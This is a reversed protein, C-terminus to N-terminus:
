GNGAHEALVAQVAEDSDDNWRVDAVVGGLSRSASAEDRPAVVRLHEGGLSAREGAVNLAQAMSADLSRLGSLDVVVPGLRVLGCLYNQLRSVSFIDVEGSVRVIFCGSQQGVRLECAPSGFESRVAAGSSWWVGQM